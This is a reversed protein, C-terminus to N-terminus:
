CLSTGLAVSQTMLSTWMHSAFALVLALSMWVNFLFALLILYAHANWYGLITAIKNGSDADLHHLLVGDQNSRLGYLCPVLIKWRANANAKANGLEGTHFAFAPAFTLALFHFIKWKKRQRKHKCKCKRQPLECAHKSESVNANANNTHVLGYLEPFNWVM